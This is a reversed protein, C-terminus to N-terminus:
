GGRRSPLMNAPRLGYVMFDRLTVGIASPNKELIQPPLWDAIRAPRHNLAPDGLPPHKRANIRDFDRDYGYDEREEFNFPIHLDYRCGPCLGTPGLLHAPHPEGCGGCAVKGYQGTEDM